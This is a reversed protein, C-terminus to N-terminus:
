KDGCVHSVLFTQNHQWLSLLFHGSMEDFHRTKDDCVALFHSRM